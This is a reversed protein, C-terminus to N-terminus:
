SMPLDKLTYYFGLPSFNHWPLFGIFHFLSFLEYGFHQSLLDREFGQTCLVPYGFLGPVLPFLAKKLVSIGSQILQGSRRLIVRILDAAICCGFEYCDLQSMRGPSGLLYALDVRPSVGIM